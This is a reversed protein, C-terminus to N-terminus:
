YAGRRSIVAPITQFLIQLDLWITWNRVYFMDMRVREEYTVDSRGRVQWLGTIGPKVTMLNLDWQEYKNLEDPTIMRPGVISMQNALVNLLQPLEDFSTKRLFSGVRTVRPDNKIKFNQRYEEMLEPSSELVDNSDTRMTRFKFADFEHGNVGMVRRRYIAPGPSDLKIVLAIIAFPLLMLLTVPIAILYDILLKGAQEIGTMRVKNITLLPVFGEERVQVGTTIVEYLGSTMSLNIHRVTGYRRFLALIDQQDLASSVLIIETVGHQEVIEELDELTGLYRAHEDQSDLAAPAVYGVLKVGSTKWEAFQESLLHGEDNAGVILTRSQFLGKTRLSYIIRRMLFRGIATFLFALVWSLIVWGRALILEDPFLFGAAIILFMGQTTAHFLKAYERTGGLLNQVNYLGILAFIVLWLFIAFLMFNTSFPEQPVASDRFVPLASEFRVLFSAQFALVILVLDVLVLAAIYMRHHWRARDQFLKQGRLPKATTESAFNTRM